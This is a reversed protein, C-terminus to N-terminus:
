NFKLLKHVKQTLIYTCTTKFFICSTLEIQVCQCTASNQINIKTHIACDVENKNWLM